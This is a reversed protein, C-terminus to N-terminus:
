DAKMQEMEIVTNTHTGLVVIDSRCKLELTYPFSTSLAYTSTCLM